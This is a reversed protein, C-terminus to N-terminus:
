TRCQGALGDEVDELLTGLYAVDSLRRKLEDLVAPAGADAADWEAYRAELERRLEQLRADLQRRVADAERRANQDGPAERLTELLEQTEFVLAALDSPVRNNREGLPSGHLELWYRGRSVPDRLTRYARNVTASASLSLARSRDPSVQHRDPHVARSAEHFLGELAARDVVLRRPVGLVAFLDAAQPLPQPAECSLCVLRLGARGACQWCERERADTATM